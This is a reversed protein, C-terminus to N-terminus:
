RFILTTWGPRIFSSRHSGAVIQRGIDINSTWLGASGALLPVLNVTENQSYTQFRRVWHWNVGDTWSSTAFLAGPLVFPQFPTYRKPFYNTTQAVKVLKFIRRLVTFVLVTVLAVIAPHAGIRLWLIRRLDEPM